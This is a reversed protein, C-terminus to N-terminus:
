GVGNIWWVIFVRYCCCEVNFFFIGLLVFKNCDVEKFIRIYIIFWIEFSLFFCLFWFFGFFLLFNFDYSGKGYGMWEEGVLFFMFYRM